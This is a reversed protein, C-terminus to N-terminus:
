SGANLFPASDEKSRRSGAEFACTARGTTPLGAVNEPPCRCRAARSLGPHAGITM